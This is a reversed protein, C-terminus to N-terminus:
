FPARPPWPDPPIDLGVLLTMGAASHISVSRDAAKTGAVVTQLDCAGSVACSVHAGIGHHPSVPDDSRDADEGANASCHHASGVALEPAAMAAPHLIPALLLALALFIRGM